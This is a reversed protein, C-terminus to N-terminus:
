IINEIASAPIESLELLYDAAKQAHSCAKLIAKPQDELIEVWNKLYAINNNQFIYKKGLAASLMGAGIDAVLEEFAYASDGFKCGFERNLRTKAGTAHTFEHCATPIYESKNIFNALAPLVVEDTKPRYYAKTGEESYKIGTKNLFNNKFEEIEQKTDESITEAAEPAYETMQCANFVTYYRVICNEREELETEGSEKKVEATYQTKKWFFVATGSEGKRISKGQEKWQDFTGWINSTFGKEEAAIWLSVINLGRYLKKSVINRPAAANAGFFPKEWQGNFENIKEIFKDAIKKIIEDTKTM